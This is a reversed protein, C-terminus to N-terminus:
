RELALDEVALLLAVAQEFELTHAQGGGASTGCRWTGSGVPGATGATM